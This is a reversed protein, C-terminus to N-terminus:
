ALTNLTTGPTQEALQSSVTLMDSSQAFMSQQQIEVTLSTSEIQMALENQNSGLQGLAGLLASGGSSGDGQQGTLLADLIMLAILLRLMQNNELGGGLSSLMANVQSHIMTVSISTSAISAGSSTASVISSQSVQPQLQQIRLGSSGTLGSNVPLSESM